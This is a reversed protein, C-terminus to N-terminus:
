MVVPINDYTCKYANCTLVIKRLYCYSYYKYVCFISLAIIYESTNCIYYEGDPFVM